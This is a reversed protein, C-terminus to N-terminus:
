FVKITKHFGDLVLNLHVCPVSVSTNYFYPLYVEALAGNRQETQMASASDVKLETHLEFGKGVNMPIRDM